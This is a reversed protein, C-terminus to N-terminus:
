LKVMKFQKTIKGDASSYRFIYIGSVLYPLQLNSGALIKEKTAVINGILIM